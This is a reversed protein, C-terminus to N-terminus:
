LGAEELAKAAEEKLLPRPYNYYPGRPSENYYPRNCGSCGSTQFAVGSSLTEKLEENDLKFKVKGSSDIEIDNKTIKKRHILYRLIQIRRYVEIRPQSKHEYATGQIPTFAFLGVTVGMENMAFLFQAIQAETEGLGVILHTTVHNEGFIKQANKLSNLHSAWDYPAKRESGKIAEFLEPTCADLALGINSVGVKKLRIMHESSIPHICISIPINVVTRLQNVIEEVDDVVNPYNLSQICVRNFGSHNPFLQMIDDFRYEPWSIRSLRNSASSSERAQPCFVCNASCKGDYYTMFFATSFNEDLNGKEIGLQIATGISLRIKDVLFIV